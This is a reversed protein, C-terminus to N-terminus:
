RAHHAGPHCFTRGAIPRHCNAKRRKGLSSGAAANQPVRITLWFVESKGPEISFKPQPNQPILADPWWTNDATNAVTTNYRASPYPIQVYNERFIM